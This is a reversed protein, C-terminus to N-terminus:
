IANAGIDTRAIVYMKERVRSLQDLRDSWSMGLHSGNMEELVDLMEQPLMFSTQAILRSLANLSDWAIIKTEETLRDEYKEEMSAPLLASYAAGFVAVLERYISAKAVGASAGPNPTDKIFRRGFFYGIAAFVVAITVNEVSL